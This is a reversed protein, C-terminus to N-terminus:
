RYNEVRHYVPGLMDAAEHNPSSKPLRVCSKDQCLMWARRLRLRMHAQTLVQSRTQRPLRSAGLEPFAIRTNRRKV